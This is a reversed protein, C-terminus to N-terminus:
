TKEKKKQLHHISVGNSIGILEKGNLCSKWLCLVSCSEEANRTTTTTKIDTHIETLKKHYLFYFDTNQQWRM